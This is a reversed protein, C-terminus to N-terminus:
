LSPAKSSSEDIMGAFRSLLYPDFKRGSEDDLINMIQEHGRRHQYPKPVGMADYADAIALMRAAYPIDEGRLGDPYGSGDVNEHHHRVAFAIEEVGEIGIALVIRQGREPHSQMEKWEEGDLNGPKLLVCDPVGIKGIDHLAAALRLRRLERAELMCARGFAGCLEVVRDCHRRTTGDREDLARALVRSYSSIATYGNWSLTM